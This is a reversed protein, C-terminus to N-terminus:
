FTAPFIRLMASFAEYVAFVVLPAVLVTGGARGWREALWRRSRWALVAALSWAILLAFGLVDTGPLEAFINIRGPARRLVRSTLRATVVRRGSGTGGDSTVLTLQARRSPALDVQSASREESSVVRYRADGWPASFDIRDGRSLDDLHRFPGSWVV